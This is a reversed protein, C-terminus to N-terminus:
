PVTCYFWWFGGRDFPVLVFPVACRGWRPAAPSDDLSATGRRGEGADLCQSINIPAEPDVARYHGGFLYVSDQRLDETTKNTVKSAPVAWLPEVYRQSGKQGQSTMMLVNLAM